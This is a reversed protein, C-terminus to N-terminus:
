YSIRSTVNRDAWKEAELIAGRQYYAYMGYYML